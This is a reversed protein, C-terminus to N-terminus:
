CQALLLRSFGPLWCTVWRTHQGTWCSWDWCLGAGVLGSALFFHDRFVAIKTWPVFVMGMAALALAFLSGGSILIAIVFGIGAMLLCSAVARYDRARKLGPKQRAACAAADVPWHQRYRYLVVGSLVLGPIAALSHFLLGTRVSLGWAHLLGWGILGLCFAAFLSNTSFTRSKVSRITM